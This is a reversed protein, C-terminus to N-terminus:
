YLRQSTDAHPLVAEMEAASMNDMDEASFSKKPASQAGTSQTMKKTEIKKYADQQGQARTEGFWERAIDEYSKDQESTLGLKLIKDRNPAYEPNETLFSDLEKEENMLAKEAEQNQVLEKLESVQDLVPALPNDKYRAQKEQAEQQDILAKFEEPTKGFKEQIMNAIEAKQSLTGQNTELEKYSKYLDDPTKGKFKPDSEWSSSAEGTEEVAEPETEVENNTEETEVAPEVTQTETADSQGQSATVDADGLPDTDTELNDM